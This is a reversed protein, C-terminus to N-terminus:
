MDGLVLFTVGGTMRTEEMPHGGGLDDLTTPDCGCIVCVRFADRYNYMCNMLYVLNDEGYKCM